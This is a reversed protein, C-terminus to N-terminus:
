DLNVERPAMRKMDRLIVENPEFIVRELEKEGKLIMTYTKAGEERSSFDYTKIGKNQNYYDLAHSTSPALIELGKLDCRYVRKRKQKSYIKDVDLEGNVYLYEFEVDFTPLLFYDAVCFAVFVLFGIIGLPLLFAAVASLATLAILLIKCIGDRATAKRKVIVETYLDSM